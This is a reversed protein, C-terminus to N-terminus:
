FFRKEKSTPKNVKVKVEGQQIEKCYKTCTTKAKNLLTRDTDNTILYVYGLLIIILVGFRSLM